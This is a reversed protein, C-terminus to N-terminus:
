GADRSLRRLWALADEAAQEPTRLYEDPITGDVAADAISRKYRLRDLKMQCWSWTEGRLQAQTVPVIFDVKDAQQGQRWVRGKLQTYDADTWPLVNVLVRNCVRQLGDVGTGISSTAVLVDVDGQLFGPLGSKDVGTFCGVRYGDEEFAEVLQEVIGSRLHTYVLTKPRVQERLVRLRARTLIQEIALVGARPQLAQLEKLEDTCDVPVEQYALTSEYRPMWRIGHRVLAQHLAMCNSVTPDAGITSEDGTILRLLSTGEVLNNIVPTASMGLVRLEQNSLVAADVFQQLNRRRISQSNEDRQKAQHIEDIVVMGVRGSAALAALERPAAPRQLHEYNVILYVPVGVHVPVDLTKAYPKATGPFVNNVAEVWTSVVANPCTILTVDAGVVRSALLASVTKGAGTGSWNGLRREDRVRVAVVKQMLNPESLVGGPSFKWGEPTVLGEARSLLSDFGSRVRETYPGSALTTVERRAAAVDQFAVGLLRAVGSSVLFEAASVDDVVVSIGGGSWTPERLQPPEVSGSSVAQSPDDLVDDVLSPRGESFAKLDDEALLGLSLAQLVGAVESSDAGVSAQQFLTFLEAPSLTLIDAGLAAIVSRLADVDWGRECAVCGVRAGIRAAPAASWRHGNRCKWAAPAGDTSSVTKPDRPDDWEVVVEPFDAVPPAPAFSRQECLPCRADVVREAPTAVWVHQRVESCQWVAPKLSGVPVKSAPYRNDRHWERSLDPRSAHVSRCEPCVVEDTTRAIPTATWRHGAPCAWIRKRTSTATDETPGITNDTHWEAAIGPHTRLLCDPPATTCYPCGRTTREAISALWTHQRWESCGWLLVLDTTVCVREAPLTNTSSYSQVLAPLTAALSAGGSLEVDAKDIAAAALLVELEADIEYALHEPDVGSLRGSQLLNQAAEDPVDLLQALEGPSFGVSAIAGRVLEAVRSASRQARAFLAEVDAPTCSLAGSLAAREDVTPRVAGEEWAEVLEVPVDLVDALNAATDFGAQQRAVLLPSSLEVAKPNVHVSDSCEFAPNRIAVVQTENFSRFYVGVVDTYVWVRRMEVTLLHEAGIARGALLRVIRLLYSTEFETRANRADGAPGAM